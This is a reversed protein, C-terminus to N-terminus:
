NWRLGREIATGRRSGFSVVAGAPKATSANAARSGPVPLGWSQYAQELYKRERSAYLESRSKQDVADAAITSDQQNAYLSALQGCLISAALAAVGWQQATPVTDVQSDVQHATTFRLRLTSAAPLADLLGIEQVPAGDVEPLDVLQVREPAIFQPPTSGVPYEISVVRSVGVVWAAPTALRQGAVPSLAVLRTRPLEDTLRAVAQAIAGDVQEPTVRDANDRVLDAVMQQYTELAM